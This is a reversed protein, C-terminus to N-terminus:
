QNDSGNTLQVEALGKQRRVDNIGVIARMVGARDSGLWLDNLAIDSWHEGGGGLVELRYGPRNVM